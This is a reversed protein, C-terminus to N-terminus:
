KNICPAVIQQTTKPVLRNWNLGRLKNERWEQHVISGASISICFLNSREGLTQEVEFDVRQHFEQPDKILNQYELFRKADSDPRAYIFEM